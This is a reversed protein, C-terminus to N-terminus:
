FIFTLKYLFIGLPMMFFFFMISCFSSHGALASPDHLLAIVITEIEFFMWELYCLSGVPISIKLYNLWKSFAM